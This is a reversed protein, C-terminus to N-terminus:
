LRCVKTAFYECIQDYVQTINSFVQPMIYELVDMFAPLDEFMGVTLYHRDVNDLATMVSKTNQYRCQDYHACTINITDGM